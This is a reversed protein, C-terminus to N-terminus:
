ASEIMSGAHVFEYNNHGFRKKHWSDLGLINQKWEKVIQDFDLRTDWEGNFVSSADQASLVTASVSENWHTTEGIAWTALFIGGRKLTQLSSNIAKNIGEVSNHEISSNWFIIDVNGNFYENGNINFDICLDTANTVTHGMKLLEDKHLTSDTRDIGIIGQGYYEELFLHFMSNGCGVDLIVMHNKDNNKKYYDIKEFIYTWDLQYATSGKIGSNKLIKYYSSKETRLPSLIEMRAKEM